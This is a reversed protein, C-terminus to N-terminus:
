AARFLGRFREVGGGYGRQRAEQTHEPDFGAFSDFMMLSLEYANAVASAARPGAAQAELLPWVGASVGTSALSTGALSGAASGAAGAAAASLAGAGAAGAVSAGVEGDVGAVVVAAAASGAGAAAGASAAGAAGLGAAFFFAAPAL